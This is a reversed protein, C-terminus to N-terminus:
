AYKRLKKNLELYLESITKNLVPHVIQKGIEMLPILVFYRKHLMPHPITLKDTSIVENGYFLIDLDITRSKMIRRKATEGNRCKTIRRGLKREVAKCVKLLEFPNLSTLLKIAGNLFYGSKIGEQPPNKLIKSVKLVKIQKNEQLLKLALLINKEKDGKNTGIGLFVKKFRETKFRHM